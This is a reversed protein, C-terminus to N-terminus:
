ELRSHNTRGEEVTVKEQGDTTLAWTLSEERGNVVFVRSLKFSPEKHEITFTARDIPAEIQLQSKKANLGLDRFIPKERLLRRTADGHAVLLFALLLVGVRRRNMNTEEMGRREPVPPTVPGDGSSVPCLLGAANIVMGASCWWIRSDIFTWAVLM